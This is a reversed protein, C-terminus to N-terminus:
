SRGRVPRGRPALTIRHLTEYSLSPFILERILQVESVEVSVAIETATLGRPLAAPDRLPRGYRFLTIHTLDGASAGGPVRLLPVLERRLASLRNPEDAVTIIATDTAVLRRFCLRFSMTRGVVDTLTAAWRPGHRRWLEDKPLDFEQHVPLLWTLNAHLAALGRVVDPIACQPAAFIDYGRVLIHIYPRPGGVL